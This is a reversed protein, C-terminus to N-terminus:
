LLSYPSSGKQFDFCADSGPKSLVFINSDDSLLKFCDKNIHQFCQHLFHVVPLFLSSFELSFSASLGSASLCIDSIVYNRRYACDINFYMCEQM